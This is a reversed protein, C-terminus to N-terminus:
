DSIVNVKLHEVDYQLSENGTLSNVDLLAVQPFTYKGGENIISFLGESDIVVTYEGYKKMLYRMNNYVAWKMVLPNRATRSYVYELAPVRLFVGINVIVIFSVMVSLVSIEGMIIHMLVAIALSSGVLAVGTKIQAKEKIESAKLSFEKNVGTFSLHNYEM